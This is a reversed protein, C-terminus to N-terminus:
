LIDDYIVEFRGRSNLGFTAITYIGDVLEGYVEYDEYNDQVDRFIDELLSKGTKPGIFDEWDDVDVEVIVEVSRRFEEITFSFEITERNVRYRGYESNLAKELQRATLIEKEEEKEVKEKEELKAKLDKIEKELEKIEIDKMALQLQLNALNQDPKDTINVTYNVGDWLVNKGLIEGLARVPVFTTPNGDIYTIFPEYAPEIAVLQGNNMIKINRYHAQLMKDFNAGFITSALLLSVLLVVLTSLVVKKSFIKM